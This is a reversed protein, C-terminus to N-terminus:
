QLARLRGQQVRLRRPLDRAPPTPPPAPASPQSRRVSPKDYPGAEDYEDYTDYGEHEDDEVLGLYLGMKRMVGPM